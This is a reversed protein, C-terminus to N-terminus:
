LRASDAVVPSQNSSSFNPGSWSYTIGAGSVTTGLILPQGECITIQDQNVAASPITNITVSIPPSPATLCPGSELTLYFSRQGPALPGPLVLQPVNTTGILTGFPPMGEFWNYRGNPNVMTVGSNLVIDNITCISNNTILAPVLPLDEIAVEVTGVATCGTVGTITVSYSGSRAPDINPIFPNEQNSVFGQPGSWQYTYLIGGQAAPPNAFLFLTDGRCIETSAAPQPNEVEIRITTTCSASNGSSDTVTMSIPSISGAQLCDFTSPSLVRSVIGCNDSSGADIWAPSIQQSVVGSPNVYVITPQCLALPAELDRVVVQFSCTDPNGAIDEVVFFVETTGVEFDHQVELVPFPYNTPPINTAGESFYIVDDLRRYSLDAYLFSVGDADGDASVASPNCPNIGDGPLGPPVSVPDPV